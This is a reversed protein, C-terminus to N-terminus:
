VSAYLTLAFLFFFYLHLVYKAINPISRKLAGFVLATVNVSRLFVAKAIMFLEGVKRSVWQMKTSRLISQFYHQIRYRNKVVCFPTSKIHFQMEIGVNEHSNKFVKQRDVRFDRISFCARKSKKSNKGGQECIKLRSM